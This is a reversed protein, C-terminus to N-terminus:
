GIVIEIYDDAVIEIRDHINSGYGISIGKTSFLSKITFDKMSFEVNYLVGNQEYAWGGIYGHNELETLWDTLECYTSEILGKITIDM